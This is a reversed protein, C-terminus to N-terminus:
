RCLPYLVSTPRIFKGIESFPLFVKQIGLAPPAVDYVNYVFTIGNGSFMFNGTLPISDTFFGIKKLSVTDALSNDERIKRNVLRHIEAKTGPLFLNDPTIKEGTQLSIVDYSLHEMPNGRGAYGRKKYQFCLLYRSNFIVNMSERKELNFGTKDHVKWRSNLEDFRTYFNEESRKMMDAPPTELKYEGFFQLQVHKKVSDIVGPSIQTTSAPYLLTLEIEASPSDQVDPMFTKDSHLYFIRLPLTGSSTSEKWEFPWETTDPGHWFGSFRHDAFLGTLTTDNGPMRKFVVRNHKDIDGYLHIIHSLHLLSDDVYLNYSYNGEMKNDSRQLDATIRLSNGLRGKMHTYSRKQQASLATTLFIFFFSLFILRRNIM